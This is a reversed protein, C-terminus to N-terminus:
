SHRKTISLEARVRATQSEIPVEDVESSSNSCSPSMLSDTVNVRGSLPLAIVRECIPETDEYEYDHRHDHKYHYMYDYDSESEVCASSTTTTVTTEHACGLWVSAVLLVCAIWAAKVAKVLPEEKAPKARASGNPEPLHSDRAM